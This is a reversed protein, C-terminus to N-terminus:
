VNGYNDKHEEKSNATSCAEDMKILSLVLVLPISIRLFSPM